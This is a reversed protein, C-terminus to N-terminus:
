PAVKRRDDKTDPRCRSHIVRNREMPHTALLREGDLGVHVVGGCIDCLAHLDELPRLRAAVQALEDAFYGAVEQTADLRRHAQQDRM